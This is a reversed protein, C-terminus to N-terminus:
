TRSREAFLGDGAEEIALLSKRLAHAHHHANIVAPWYVLAIRPLLADLDLRCLREVLPAVDAISRAETSM